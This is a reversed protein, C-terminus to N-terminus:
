FYEFCEGKLPKPRTREAISISSTSAHEGAAKDDHDARSDDRRRHGTRLEDSAPKNQAHAYGNRRDTCRCVCDFTSWRLPPLSMQIINVKPVWSM